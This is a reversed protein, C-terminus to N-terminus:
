AGALELAIGFAKDKLKDATGDFNASAFRALQKAEETGTATRVPAEYDLYEGVTQFLSYITGRTGPHQNTPSALLSHLREERAKRIAIARASEDEAMDELNATGAKPDVEKPKEFTEGFMRDIAEKSLPKAAMLRMAAETAKFSETTKIMSEQISRLNETINLTHRLNFGTTLKGNHLITGAAVMRMGNTCVLRNVKPIISLRANGIHGNRMEILGETEDGKIDFSLGYCKARIWVLEGGNLSGASHLKVDAFGHLGKLYDFLESNQVPTFTSGVIGLQRDSDTRVIAVHSEVADGNKRFLDDKRVTWNLKSKEYATPDDVALNLGTGITAWPNRTHRQPLTASTM